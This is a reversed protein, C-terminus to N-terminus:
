KNEEAKERLRRDVEDLDIGGLFQTTPAPVPTPNIAQELKALALATKGGGERVEEKHSRSNAM